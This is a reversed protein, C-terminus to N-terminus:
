KYFGDDWVWDVFADAYYVGLAFVGVSGAASFLVLTRWSM